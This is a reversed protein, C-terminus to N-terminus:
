RLTSVVDSRCLPSRMEVNNRRRNSTSEVDIRRKVVIDDRHILCIPYIKLETHTIGIQSMEQHFDLKGGNSLYCLLTPHALEATGM